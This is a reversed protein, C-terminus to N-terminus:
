RGKLETLLATVQADLQSLDGTNDIVRDALERKQDIPIQAEIRSQAEAATFNNRAMLRALQQEPTVYVV